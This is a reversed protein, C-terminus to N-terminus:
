HDLSYTLSFVGQLPAGPFNGRAQNGYSLSDLYREDTLNTVNLQAKWPGQTFGTGINVITHPKVKFGNNEREGVYEYGISVDWNGTLQYTIFATSTLDAANPLPQGDNDKTDTIGLSWIVSLADTLQGHIDTEFGQSSHEGGNIFALAFDPDTIAVNTKTIDFFAASYNLKGDYLFGKIGLEYGEGIEPDLLNGNRDLDTQPFFSESYSAFISVADNVNYTLGAQYITEDYERDGLDSDDYRAGVSILLSDTADIHNQIFIGKRKGITEWGPFAPIEDASPARQYVPNTWDLIDAQEFTFDFLTEGRQDTDRWDAGLTFRNRMGAIDIEGFLNIQAATEETVQSQLAPARLLTQTESDYSIPLFLTSYSYETEYQRLRAELTFQSGLNQQLDLGSMYFEREIRSYPSSTVQENDASTLSGDDEVVTGMDAFVDDSVYEGVYTVVTNDTIQWRASPALSWKENPDAQNRWGEDEEYLAAVRVGVNGINRNIDLRPSYSPNSGAELSIITFDNPTPRKTTLNIIGGPNSEGYIISDPGKLVEIRELNWIESEPAGFMEIRFGDRLVPTSDFGRTAFSTERGDATGSYVLNSSLHLINQLNTPNIRQILDSEFIQISRAQEDATLGNRGVSVAGSDQTGVVTVQELTRQSQQESTQQALASGTSFITGILTIIGAAQYNM